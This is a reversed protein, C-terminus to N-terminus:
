KEGRVERKRTHKTKQKKKGWKKGESEAVAVYGCNSFFLSHVGVFRFARFAVAGSHLIEHLAVPFVSIGPELNDAANAATERATFVVM